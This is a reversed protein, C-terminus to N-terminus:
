FKFVDYGQKRMHDHADFKGTTKDSLHKKRAAQLKTLTEKPDLRKSKAYDYAQEPVIKDAETNNQRFYNNAYGLFDNLMYVSDFEKETFNDIHMTEMNDPDFKINLPEDLTDALEKAHAHDTKALNSLKNAHQPYNTPKNEDGISRVYEEMILQELKKKTLKM